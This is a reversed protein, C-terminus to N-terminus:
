RVLMSYREVNRRANEFDPKLRLAESFEGVADKYNKLEALAIGANYHANVYDPRLRVATQFEALAESTQGKAAFATGLNFHAEANGPELRISEAFQAAAEGPRDLVMLARGANYYGMATQPDLRIAELLEPLAERARGARLWVVGIGEHANALGPDLRLAERYQAEADATRGSVNLATGLNLHAFPSEPELRVAEQLHPLAEATRGRAMLAEGLNMRAEGFLPRIRIANEFDSIAEDVQGRKRLEAGLSNYAIYNGDVVELAHRFLAVSDRWYRVDVYTVVFWGACLTSALGALAMRNWGRNEFLAPGGWALMISIGIMPIYTFRDARAQDGVQVLGIVPVLTGLYWLWGIALYRREGARAVAFTILALVMAAGAIEWAPHEAYPYFVALNSPWVFKVPYAIYSILANGIRTAMSMQDITQVAGGQRQAFFTVASAAISLAILPLKELVLARKGSDRRLPWFDFLLLAFPLTVVTAKSMLGCCFLLAVGAYRGASPKEAYRVYAWMTAIWFFGSLVDKREAAWAVSEVHLPHLAFAFAVFASPWRAGTARKFVFFLLVSSLLHIGASMLHHLGSRDGFLERDLMHSLLTLPFWFSPSQAPRLAWAFGGWTLGQIVHLNSVYYLDDFNIFEHSGVQWYAAIIAVALGFAIWLDLNKKPAPAPIGAKTATEPGTRSRGARVMEPPAKM